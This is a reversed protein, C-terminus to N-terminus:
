PTEVKYIRAGGGRAIQKFGWSAPDERMDVAGWDTDRMVIYHIGRAALERGAWHRIDVPAEITQTQPDSALKVWAGSKDMFEVQLRIKLFDASTDLRVEDLMQYKGFDAEIYMGPSATEWSRWRTAPSNDFAMQVDWPNPWAKLRWSSDRPLENGNLFFRLEHVKFEELPAGEATELVRLRQVSTAPFKFVRRRTAYRSEDWGGNLIDVLNDNYASQFGVLIEHTTYADPLGNVALVREGKPVVDDIMRAIGYGGSNETLYRDQPIKRIAQKWLIKDLRWVYKGSYSNINSPWSLLAHVVVIVGLVRPWPIALAMALSLFPMCPILFRTGVNSLFPIFLLLGPLLLRRGERFRLALLAIPALLFVPGTLGDTKDGRVTVELPLDKRNEVSYHKLFQRYEEETV